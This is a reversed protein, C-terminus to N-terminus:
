PQEVAQVRIAGTLLQQMLGRKQTELLNNQAVVNAYIQDHLKLFDAIREQEEASPITIKSNFLDDIGINLLGHNRAGEQAINYVARDMGGGDFFQAFFDSSNLEEILRYCVYLTSLIGEDYRDLRKFAGYPYGASSSKNYAFEGRKLLYYDQIAEGAINKNFFTRQDVLGNQASATLVLQNRAANKRTIREFIDGFRVSEWKDAFEPFRVSPEGTDQVRMLMQMLTQKRQRLAEILRETLTIAEDWTSLIAAIKRQEPLSPLPILQGTIDAKHVHVLTSKFGHANAEIRSTIIQLISYLWIQDLDTKPKVRYIHQNLVDTPGDWITPGFSVGRTGAWAFLLTGPEVIWDKEPEGNFYNYERSGNLNQIRIIPLGESSWDPPRFGYGHLFNCIDGLQVETWGNPTM